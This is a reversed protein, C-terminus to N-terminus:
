VVGSPASKTQRSSRELDRLHGSPNNRGVLSGRGRTM